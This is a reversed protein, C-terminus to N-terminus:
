ACAALLIRHMPTDLLSLRQLGAAQLWQDYENVSYADGGGTALMSAAFLLAFRSQPSTALRQEDLIHDIICILGGPAISRAALQLLRKASEHNQLHFMNAFLLLDFNEGWADQWFDCARGTFRSAVGLRVSQVQALPVIRECDLGLATWHPFQQLLLQSYLGTGCGVDLVSVAKETNWQMAQLGNTLQNVSPPAWFNIGGVLHEYDHASIQNPQYLGSQNVSGTRVVRAFNRWADWALRRDYTFKGVLSYLTGTLLCNQMDLSLSYYVANATNTREVLEYAYLADLLIRMGRKDTQLREALSASESPGKALEEFLHLDHAAEIISPAWLAILHEYVKHASRVSSDVLDNDALLASDVLAPISSAQSIESTSSSPFLPYHDHDSKALNSTIAHTKLSSPELPM